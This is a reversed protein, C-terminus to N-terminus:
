FISRHNKRDAFSRWTNDNGDANTITGTVGSPVESSIMEVSLGFGTSDFFVICQCESTLIRSMCGQCDHYRFGTWTFRMHTPTAMFLNTEDLWTQVRTIRFKKQQMQIFGGPPAWNKGKRDQWHPSFSWHLYLMSIKCLSAIREIRQEYLTLADSSSLSSSFDFLVSLHIKLRWERRVPFSITRASNRMIVFILSWIPDNMSTWRQVNVRPRKRRWRHRKEFQRWNNRTVDIYMWREWVTFLVPLPLDNLIIM